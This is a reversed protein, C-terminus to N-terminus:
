DDILLPNLLTKYEGSANHVALLRGKHWMEFVFGPPLGKLQHELPSPEIFAFGYRNDYMSDKARAHARAIAAENFKLARTNVKSILYWFWYSNLCKLEIYALAEPTFLAALAQILITCRTGTRMASSRSCNCSCGSRTPSDIRTEISTRSWDPGTSDAGVLSTAAVIGGRLVSSGAVSASIARVIAALM